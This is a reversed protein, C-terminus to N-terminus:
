AQEHTAAFGAAHKRRSREGHIRRIGTGDNRRLCSDLAKAEPRGFDSSGPQRNALAPM